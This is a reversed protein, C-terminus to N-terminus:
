NHRLQSVNPGVPLRWRRLSDAHVAGLQEVDGGVHQEIRCTARSAGATALRPAARDAARAAGLQIGNPARTISREMVGAGDCPHHTLGLMTVPSATRALQAHQKDLASRNWGHLEHCPHRSIGPSARATAPAQGLAKRAPGGAPKTDGAHWQQLTRRWSRLAPEIAARTAHAGRARITRESGSASGHLGTRAHEHEVIDARGSGRECRTRLREGIAPEDDHCTREDTDALRADPAIHTVQRTATDIRFVRIVTSNGCRALFKRERSARANGIRQPWSWICPARSRSWVEVGTIGGYKSCHASLAAVSRKSCTGRKRRPRGPSGGLLLRVM